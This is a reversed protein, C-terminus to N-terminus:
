RHSAERNEEVNGKVNEYIGNEIMGSRIFTFKRIAGVIALVWQDQRRKAFLEEIRIFLDARL